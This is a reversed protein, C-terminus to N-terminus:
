KLWNSRVHRVTVIEIEDDTVDYFLLFPTKPARWKRAGSGSMVGLFLFELLPLLAAEVREIMDSALAPDLRDYFEAM